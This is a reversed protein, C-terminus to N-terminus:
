NVISFTRQLAYIIVPMCFFYVKVGKLRLPMWMQALVSVMGNCLPYLPNGIKGSPMRHLRACVCCVSLLSQLDHYLMLPSVSCIGGDYCWWKQTEPEPKGMTYATM